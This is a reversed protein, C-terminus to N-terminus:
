SQAGSPPCPAQGDDASVLRVESIAVAMPGTSTLVFPSDVHGMDAGAEAFCRLRIRTTTWSELPMEEFTPTLDVTGACSNGCDVSLTVPGQPTKQVQVDFALALNANTERRLDLAQASYLYISAPGGGSWTALRSDEQAARDIATVRLNDSGETTAPLSDVLVRSNVEDGIYFRWPPKPGGAFFVGSEGSVKFDSTEVLDDAVHNDQSYDLGYGYPFLPAYETDNFNLSTQSPLRPWSFSLRGTFDHAIDGDADRMIVDAIAAGESGPLWAAVFAQSDNLERNVWLPRGSLFISVVPIGAQNLEQLMQRDSDDSPKYELTHIDGQFEAYPDEGFVVVAIDPRVSFSGDASLTATGGAAEVSRRIGEWISTAGPFDSNQNGTGQWSITWGGSQKGINNAGDGAVLIHQTPSLPLLGGNNKLLVLSARAAQRAVDRHEPNGLVSTDGALARSSPRGHEFLGARLKVRLIRRVADELRQESITGDGVQALTNEFLTKWDEPVMFMDVGANFSAACSDNTCGRVQGHGNWDGVVFGDFGMRGKLVDTLLDKRGHLKRGHWSNFSAMVTQVGSSLAGSYGAAHIDRLEAETSRNDGQDKGEYTGGDGVFHKATAILKPPELFDDDDPKGQLGEVMARAYERVIEPDESYSEYTRGWRDDRVVALTPAFTWNIGTASVEAATIEGIRRILAANGAAGLGINHPFVTAGIVNAHGHVADIGWLIPIAAAGDSTDMSADYLRDALQVWDSLTSYKNAGPFSGGGSLVSGLHYEVVDKPTVHQIEAQITQGVKEELSMEALLSDIRAELVPNAPVPNPITPWNEAVVQDPESPPQTTAPGQCAMAAFVLILTAVLIQPRQTSPM